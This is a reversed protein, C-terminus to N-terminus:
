GHAFHESGKGILFLSLDRCPWTKCQTHRQRHPQKHNHSKDRAASASASGMPQPYRVTPWQLAASQRAHRAPPPEELQNCPPQPGRVPALSGHLDLVICRKICRTNQKHEPQAKKKKQSFGGTGLVAISPQGTHM